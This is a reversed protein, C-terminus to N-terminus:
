RRQPRKPVPGHDLEPEDTVSTNGRISCIAQTNVVRITNLAHTAEFVTPNDNAGGKHRLHGFLQELPDQNLHGTLVFSAGRQLLFRICQVISKTTIKLGNITQYSIQMCSKEKDTFNGPRNDVNTKWQDFYQIFDNEM